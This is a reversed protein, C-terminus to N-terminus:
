LFKLDLFIIILKKKKKVKRLYVYELVKYSIIQELVLVLVFFLIYYQLLFFVYLILLLGLVVCYLDVFWEDVFYFLKIYIYRYDKYMCFDCYILCIRKRRFYDFLIRIIVEQLFSVFYIVFLYEDSFVDMEFKRLIIRYNELVRDFGRCFFKLYLGYIDDIICLGSVLIYM